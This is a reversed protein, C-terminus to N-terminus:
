HLSFIGSEFIQFTGFEPVKRQTLLLSQADSASMPWLAEYTAEQFM